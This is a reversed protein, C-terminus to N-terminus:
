NGGFPNSPPQDVSGRVALLARWEQQTAPGPAISRVFAFPMEAGVTHLFLVNGAVWGAGWGAAKLTFYPTGTNRNMPAFDENINGAAILGLHEGILEFDQGTARFRLAWRETIAGLNNVSVPYSVADYSGVAENGDKSDKWTVGDWSQQDFLRLVHAYKNGYRVATSLVDGEAFDRGVATTLKVTGDVAVEAVRRYVEVRARVVIQAPWGTTDEITVTGAALDCKFGEEIQGGEATAAIIDISSVDEAGVNYTMGASPAFASGWITRSIVCYDGARVFPMRGDPPLREATLGMLESDIPLYTYTVANYRLTSPEVARPVWVKGDQVSGIDAPDYWWESKQQESLNQADAFHGFMIQFFGTAFDMGGWADDGGIVGHEDVQAVISGGDLATATLTLGGPRVPLSATRGYIVGTNWKAARTWLRLLRPVEMTRGGSWGTMYVLGSEYDITGSATGPSSATRGRYLVGDYDTYTEGMWIFQVSGPVITESTMPALDFVVSGLAHSGAYPTLAPMGHAYELRVNSAPLVGSSSAQVEYIGGCRTDASGGQGDLAAAFAAPHEYDSQYGAVKPSRGLVRLMVRQGDYDVVGRGAALNGEGDDTVTHLQATYVKPQDNLMIPQTTCATSTYRGIGTDAGTGTSTVERRQLQTDDVGSVKKLYSSIVNLDGRYVGANVTIAM